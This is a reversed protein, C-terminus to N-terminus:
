ESIPNASTDVPISAHSNDDPSEQPKEGNKENGSLKLLENAVVDEDAKPNKKQKKVPQEAYMNKNAISSNSVVNPNAAAAAQAAMAASAAMEDLSPLHNESLAPMGEQLAQLHALFEQSAIMEPTLGGDFLLSNLGNLSQMYNHMAQDNMSAASSFNAPKRRTDVPKVHVPPDPLKQKPTSEVVQNTQSKQTAPQEANQDPLDKKVQETEKNATGETTQSTKAELEGSQVDEKPPAPKPTVAPSADPTMQGTPVPNSPNGAADTTPSTAAQVKQAANGMIRRAEGLIEDVRPAGRARKREGTLVRWKDHM